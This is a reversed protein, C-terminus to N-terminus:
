KEPALIRVNDLAWFETRRGTLKAHFELEVPGSDYLDDPLPVRVPVIWYGLKRNHVKVQGQNDLPKKEDEDQLRCPFSTLSFLPRGNAQITFVDALDGESDWKGVLYLDFALVLQEAGTSATSIKDLHLTTGAPFWLGRNNFLGLCDKNGIAYTGQKAWQPAVPAATSFSQVTTDAAYLPTHLLVALLFCPLAHISRM